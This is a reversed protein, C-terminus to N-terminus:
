ILHIVICFLHWMRCLGYLFHIYLIRIIRLDLVYLRQSLSWNYCGLYLAMPDEDVNTTGAVLTDIDARNHHYGRECLHFHSDVSEVIYFEILKWLSGVRKNEVECNCYYSGNTPIM